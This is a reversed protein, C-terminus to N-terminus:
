GINKCPFHLFIWKLRIYFLFVLFHSCDRNWFNFNRLTINLSPPTQEKDSYRSQSAWWTKLWWHLMVHWVWGWRNRQCHLLYYLLLYEPARRFDLKAYFTTITPENIVHKALWTILFEFHGLVFVVIPLTKFCEAKYTRILRCSM